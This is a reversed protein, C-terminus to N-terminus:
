DPEAQEFAGELEQNAIILKVATVISDVTLESVVVLSSDWLYTGDQEDHVHRSRELEKRLGEPTSFTAAFRRGDPFEVHVDVDKEPYLPETGTIITISYGDGSIVTFPGDVKRFRLVKGRDGTAMLLLHGDAPGPAILFDRVPPRDMIAIRSPHADAAPFRWREKVASPMEYRVATSREVGPAIRVLDSMFRLPNPFIRVPQPRFAGAPFLAEMARRAGVRSFPLIAM